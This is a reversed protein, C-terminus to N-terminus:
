QPRPSGPEGRGRINFAHEAQSCAPIGLLHSLSATFDGCGGFLTCLSFVRFCPDAKRDTEGKTRLALRLRPREGTALAALRRTFTPERKETVTPVM